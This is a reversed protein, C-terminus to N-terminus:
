KIRRCALQNTLLIDFTESLRLCLVMAQKCQFYELNIHSCERGIIKSAAWLEISLISNEVPLITSPPTSLAM